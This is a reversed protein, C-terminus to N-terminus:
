RVDQPGCTGAVARAYVHQPCVGYLGVLGIGFAILSMYIVLALGLHWWWRHRRVRVQKFPLIPWASFQQPNWCRAPRAPDDPLRGSGGVTLLVIGLAWLAGVIGLAAAM